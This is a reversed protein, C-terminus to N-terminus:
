RQTSSPRPGAQDSWAMGGGSSALWRCPRAKICRGGRRARRGAPWTCHDIDGGVSAAPRIGLMYSVGFTMGLTLPIALAMILALRWEWFGILSVFVVLIIAEYLARLFLHINEKVQLPQDSTHAIILDPPLIKNLQALKQDVSQGFAAIQQQDRMYIALTISRQAAM